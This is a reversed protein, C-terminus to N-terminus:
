SIYNFINPTGNIKFILISTTKKKLPKDHFTFLSYPCM